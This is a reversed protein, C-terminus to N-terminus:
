PHRENMAARDGSTQAEAECMYAGSKTHGYDAHELSITSTRTSMSGFSLQDPVAINLKGRRRLDAEPRRSAARRRLQRRQNRDLGHYPPAFNARGRNLLLREVNIDLQVETTVVKSLFTLPRQRV